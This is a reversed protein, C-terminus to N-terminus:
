FDVGLEFVLTPKTWGLNFVYTTFSVEKYSFGTLLGRQVDFRTHYAKTRQAVLGVKLWDLPSYTLQPWAYFFSGSRDSTDFVYEGSSSLELRKYTLSVEFGPAVGTTNGFVGGIMPTAELVVNHGASFNYGLWLSGTELDEYNYRAELHLWRRDATFIPGIYFENHPVVYGDVTVSFSWQRPAAVPSSAAPNNSPEQALARVGLLIIVALTRIILTTRM